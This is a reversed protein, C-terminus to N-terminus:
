DSEMYRRWLQEFPSDLAFRANKDLVGDKEITRNWFHVARCGQLTLTRGESPSEFLVRYDGFAVPYFHWSPLAHHIYGLHRAACTLGRPGLESFRVDERRNGLVRRRLKRFCMGIGDYPQIRNPHECSEALWRALPDGSSLGLIAGDLQREDQWAFITPSAYDLKRLCVVDTDSWIGGREFLLRYRFWDSFPALSQTRRHRFVATRPLIEAADRVRVGAPIGEPEDYVYLDVRHGNRLFSVMSLREMRSLPAGHWFMQITPLPTTNMM